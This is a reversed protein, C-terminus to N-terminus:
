GQGDNHTELKNEQKVNHVNIQEDTRSSNKMKLRM